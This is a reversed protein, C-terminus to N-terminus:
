TFSTAVTASAIPGVQVSSSDTLRMTAAYSLPTTTAVVEGTQYCFNVTLTLTESAAMGAPYTFTTTMTDAKNNVGSLVTAISASSSQVTKVAIGRAKPTYTENPVITVTGTIPGTIPSSGNEITFSTPGTASYVPKDQGEIRVLRIASNPSFYVKPNTPSAAATPAAVAAAIVPLSWIAGQVVTRRSFGTSPKAIADKTM